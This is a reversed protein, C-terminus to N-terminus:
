APSEDKGDSEAEEPVSETIEDPVATPTIEEILGAKIWTDRREDEIEEIRGLKRGLAPVLWRYKM